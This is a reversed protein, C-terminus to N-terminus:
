HANKVENYANNVAVLTKSVAENDPLTLPWSPHMNIYYENEGPAFVIFFIHDANVEASLRNIAINYHVRCGAKEGVAKLKDPNILPNNLFSEVAGKFPLINMEGNSSDTPGRYLKVADQCYEEVRDCYTAILTEPVASLKDTLKDILVATDADDSRVMVMPFWKNLLCFFRPDVGHNVLYSVFETTAIGAVWGYPKFTGPPAWEEDSWFDRIHVEDRKLRQIFFTFEPKQNLFREILQM